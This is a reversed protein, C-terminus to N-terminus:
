HFLFKLLFAFPPTWEFLVCDNKGINKFVNIIKDENGKYLHVPSRIKGQNFLKAIEKEFLILDKKNM